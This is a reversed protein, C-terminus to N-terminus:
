STAHLEFSMRDVIRFPSDPADQRLLSLADITVAERGLQGFDEQLRELWTRRREPPLRGTLTMHFRFEEFM